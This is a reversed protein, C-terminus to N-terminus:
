MINSVQYSKLSRPSIPIIEKLEEVGFVFIFLMTDLADATVKLSQHDWIVELFGHMVKDFM